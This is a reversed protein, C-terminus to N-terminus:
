REGNGELTIAVYDAGNTDTPPRALLIMGHCFCPSRGKLQTEVMRGSRGPLMARDSAIQFSARTEKLVNEIIGEKTM